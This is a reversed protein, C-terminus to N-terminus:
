VTAAYSQEQPDSLAAPLAKLLRYEYQWGSFVMWWIRLVGYRTLFFHTGYDRRENLWGMVAYALEDQPTAQKM